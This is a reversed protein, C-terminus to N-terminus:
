KKKKKKKLCFVAYSIRVHSSNLRTSKRDIYDSYAGFQEPNLYSQLEYHWHGTNYIGFLLAPIMALVVMFMTRKLDVGDRIHAGKKTVHKPTFLFTSLSEYLPYM